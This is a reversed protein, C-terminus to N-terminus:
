LFNWGFCLMVQSETTFMWWHCVGGSCPSCDIGLRWICRSTHQGWEYNIQWSCCTLAPQRQPLTLSVCVCECLWHLGDCQRMSCTACTSCTFCVRLSGILRRFCFLFMHIIVRLQNFLAWTVPDIWNSFVDGSPHYDYYTRKQFM